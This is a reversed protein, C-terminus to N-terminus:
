VHARGIQDEYIGNALYLISNLLTIITYIVSYGAIMNIWKKKNM